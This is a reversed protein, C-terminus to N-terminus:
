RIKSILYFPKRLIFIKMKTDQFFAFIDVCRLKMEVINSCNFLKINYVFTFLCISIFSIIDTASNRTRSFFIRSEEAM